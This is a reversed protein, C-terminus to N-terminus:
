ICQTNFRDLGQSVHRYLSPAPNSLTEEGPQHESGSTSNKSINSGRDGSNQDPLDSIPSGYRYKERLKGLMEIADLGLVSTQSARPYWM